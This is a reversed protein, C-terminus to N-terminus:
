AGGPKKMVQADAPSCGASLWLGACWACALTLRTRDIM